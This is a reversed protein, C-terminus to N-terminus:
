PDAVVAKQRLLVDHPGGHGLQELEFLGTTAKDKHSRQGRKM